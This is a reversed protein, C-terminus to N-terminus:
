AAFKIKPTKRYIYDQSDKYTYTYYEDETIFGTNILAELFLEESDFDMRVISYGYKPCFEPHQYGKPTEGTSSNFVACDLTGKNLIKLTDGEERWEFSGGINLEYLGDYEGGSLIVQYISSRKGTIHKYFIFDDAIKETFWEGTIRNIVEKKKRM